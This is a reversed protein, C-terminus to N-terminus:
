DLLSYGIFFTVIGMWFIEKFIILFCITLIFGVLVCMKSLKKINKPPIIKIKDGIM